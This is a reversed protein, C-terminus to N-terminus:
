PRARHFLTCSMGALVLALSLLDTPAVTEHLMLASSLIGVAPIGFMAVAGKQAPMLTMLRFWCWNGFITSVLVTYALALWVELHLAGPHISVGLAAITACIPLGGILISWGTLVALPTEWRHRKMFVAGFAASVAAGVMLFAGSLSKAVISADPAVLLALGGLGIVIGLFEMASVRARLLWPSLLAVFIPTSNAIISARGAPMLYLGYTVFVQYATVNFLTMGIFPWLEARRIKLGLGALRSLALCGVGGISLILARHVLPHVERLVIKAIPWNVGWALVLLAMLVLGLLPVSSRSM